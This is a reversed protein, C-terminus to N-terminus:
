HRWYYRNISLRKGMYDKREAKLDNLKAEVKTFPYNPARKRANDLDAKLSTIREGIPKYDSHSAISRASKGTYAGSEWNGTEYNYSLKGSAAM